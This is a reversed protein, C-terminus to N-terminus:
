KIKEQTRGSSSPSPIERYGDDDLGEDRKLPRSKLLGQSAVANIAEEIPIRAIQNKQDVWGYSSLQREENERLNKMEVKPFQQLLPAPPLKPRESLVSQSVEVDDQNVHSNFYDFLGWMASAAILIGFALAIGYKSVSFIDADGHEYAVHPNEEPEEPNQHDHKTTIDDM